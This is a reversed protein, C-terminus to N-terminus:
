KTRCAGNMQTADFKDWRVRKMRVSMTAAANRGPFPFRNRDAHVFVAAHLVLLSGSFDRHAQLPSRDSGSINTACMGQRLGDTLFCSLARAHLSERFGLLFRFISSLKLSSM